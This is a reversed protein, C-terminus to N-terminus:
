GGARYEAQEQRQDTEEQGAEHTASGEPGAQSDDHREQAETQADEALQGVVEEVGDAKSPLYLRSSGYRKSDSAFRGLRYRVSVVRRQVGSADRVKLAGSTNRGAHFDARSRIGSAGM